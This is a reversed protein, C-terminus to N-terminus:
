SFVLGGGRKASRSSGNPKVSAHTLCIGARARAFPCDLARGRLPENPPNLFVFGRRMWPQALGDEKETFNMRPTTGPGCSPPARTWDFPGLRDLIWKPTIHDQSKGVCKPPRWQRAHKSFFVGAKRVPAGNRGIM